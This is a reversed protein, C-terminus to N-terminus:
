PLSLHQDKQCYLRCSNYVSGISLCQTFNNRKNVGWSTKELVVDLSGMAELGCPLFANNYVTLGFLDTEIKRQTSSQKSM